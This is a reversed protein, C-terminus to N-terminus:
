RRSSGRVPMSFRFTSIRYFGGEAMLPFSTTSARIRISITCGCGCGIRRARRLFLRTKLPADAGSVLDSLPTDVGYASTDQSIVLKGQRRLEVLKRKRRVEGIPRSVLDGRMSPIICFTCRHNCGELDESICLAPAHASVGHLVLDIFPDHPQPLHRHVAQM